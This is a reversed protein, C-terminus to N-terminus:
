EVTELLFARLHATEEPLDSVPDSVVKFSVPATIVFDSFPVLAGSRLLPEVLRQWGLVIGAGSQAAQLAITYTNVQRERAIPGTYGLQNFWTKWNTWSASDADLHILPLQALEGLGQSLDPFRNPAVLPLLVDNFLPTEIRKKDDISGYKIILDAARATPDLTDSVYQNVRAQPNAEWYKALRPTLWLASVASTAAITVVGDQTHNRLRQVSDAIDSFGGQVARFLVAGNDTLSVGRHQRQFLTQGIERELSKIQHSVAGSTVNLEQAATKFSQHRAAAEFAALATLSPLNYFPRAM